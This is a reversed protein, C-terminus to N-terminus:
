SNSQKLPNDPDHIVRPKVPFTKEKLVATLKRIVDAYEPLEKLDRMEYEDQEMDYLALPSYDDLTCVLKYKPTRIMRWPSDLAYESIIYDQTKNEEGKLYKLLSCGDLEEHRELGAVELATPYIDVASVLLDSVVGRRGGPIRAIFPVGASKEYPYGKNKLGHSGQMDGHDSTYIILTDDYVGLEKLTDVIRGVGADIQTCLAAYLRKYEAMNGGYRQYDPCKEFPRPSRPSFTPTYPDIEEYDPTKDFEVGEYLAAYEPSPQVPYHPAQYGVVAFFPRKKRCLLRLKEVTLDTTVETRHKQYTHRVNQEDYFFVDNNHPPNPDFGNYCQYGVFHEFGGRQEEPISNDGESGLHWKGVFCTQYGSDRLAQALPLVNEPLPDGNHTMGSRSTFQGTMLCGRYPGCVPNNSYGNRFLVGEECLRDLNPTIFKEDRKGLAYKHQQDSFIVLINL